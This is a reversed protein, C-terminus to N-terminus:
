KIAVVLFHQSLISERYDFGAEVALYLRLALKIIKWLMWRIASKFGHFIPADEYCMVDSFGSSLILQTISRRTFSLEHTFDGYRSRAGFPSEANTTHIIWKGGRRLARNVRDVLLMLEDKTFHEIVDFSVVM